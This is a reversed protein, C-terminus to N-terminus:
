TATWIGTPQVTLVGKVLMDIGIEGPQWDTAFGSGTWLSGDAWTITVTEASATLPPKKANAFSCHVTLVLPKPTHLKGPLFTHGGFQGTTPQTANLKTTQVAPRSFGPPTISEVDVQAEWASTGFTITAGTGIDPTTAM